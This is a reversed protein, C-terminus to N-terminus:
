EVQVAAQERSCLFVIFVQETCASDSYKGVNGCTTVHRHERPLLYSHVSEDGDFVGGGGTRVSLPVGHERGPPLGFIELAELQEAWAAGLTRSAQRATRLEPLTDPSNGSHREWAALRSM